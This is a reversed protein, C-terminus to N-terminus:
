GYICRVFEECGDQTFIWKEEAGDFAFVFRFTHPDIGGFLTFIVVNNADEDVHCEWDAYEINQHKLAIHGKETAYDMYFLFVDDPDFAPIPIPEVLLDFHRTVPEVDMLDVIRDCDAFLTRLTRM